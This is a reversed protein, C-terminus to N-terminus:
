SLPPMAPAAAPTAPSAEPSAVPAASQPALSPTTTAPTRAIPEAAGTPLTPSRTAYWGGAGAIALLLILVAAIPGTRGRARAPVPSGADLPAHRTSSNAPDASGASSRAVSGASRPLLRTLDDTTTASSSAAARGGAPPPPAADIGAPRTDAWRNPEDDVSSPPVPDAPRALRM